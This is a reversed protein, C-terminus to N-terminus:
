YTFYGDQYYDAAPSLARDFIIWVPSEGLGNIGRTSQIVAGDKAVYNFKRNHRLGIYAARNTADNFLYEFNSIAKGFTALETHTDKAWFDGALIIGSSLSSGERLSCTENIKAKSAYTSVQAVCGNMFYGRSSNYSTTSAAATGGPCHFIDSNGPKAYQLYDKIQYDWCKGTSNADALGKISPLWDGYDSAYMHMALGIQKLNGRCVSDKATDRAKSVAPLLMAALIAIIAIVVLLEILTFENDALKNRSALRTEGCFGGTIDKRM